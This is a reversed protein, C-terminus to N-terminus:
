RTQLERLLTAADISTLAAIDRVNFMELSMDRVEDDPIKKKLTISKIANLQATSLKALNPASPQTTSPLPAQITKVPQSPTAKVPPQPHHAPPTRVPQSEAADMDGLEEVSCIGINVMDRIARAKARTSAMRILHPTIMSNVNKPNADGIDEFVEGSCSEATAKAIAEHGNNDTPFQIVEVLLRKLGKRHALDLLGRYLIFDKGKLNLLFEPPITTAECDNKAPAPQPKPRLDIYGGNNGAAEIALLHKCSWNTDDKHSLFDECTCIRKDGLAVKYLKKRDSGEVFFMSDDLQYVKLKDAKEKRTDKQKDTM